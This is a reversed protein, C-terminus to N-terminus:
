FRFYTFWGEGPNTQAWNHEFGKVPKPGYYIDV